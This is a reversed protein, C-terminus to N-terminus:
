RVTRDLRAREEAVRVRLGDIRRAQADFAIVAAREVENGKGAAALEFRQVAARADTSRGAGLNTALERGAAALETARAIEAKRAPELASPATTGDLPEVASAVSTAYDDFAAAQAAPDSAARIRRRLELGARAAARREVVLVPLYRALLSVDAAFDAEARTLLVLRRHLEGAAAPPALARLRADFHRLASTSRDLDAGSTALKGPDARVGNYVQNVDQLQIAVSRQVANVEDIYAAVADRKTSRDFVGALSLGALIALVLTAALGLGFWRNRSLWGGQGFAKVTM